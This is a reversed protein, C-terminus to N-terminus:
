LLINKEGSLTFNSTVAHVEFIVFSIEFNGLSLVLVTKPSLSLSLGTPEGCECM